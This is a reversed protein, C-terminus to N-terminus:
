KWFDVYNKWWNRLFFQEWTQCFRLRSTVTSCSFKFFEKAVPEASASRLFVPFLYKSFVDIATSNFKCGGSILLGGVLYVQFLDGPLSQQTAFFRLPLQLLSTKVLTVQLCSPCNRIYDLLFGVESILISPPQILKTIGTHGACKINNIRHIM